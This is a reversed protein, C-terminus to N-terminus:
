LSEKVNLEMRFKVKNDVGMRTDQVIVESFLKAKQLEAKIRDVSEFSSADGQLRLRGNELLFDTFSVRVEKPIGDTVAKMVELASTGSGLVGLKRKADFVKDRMQRMPDQTAPSEPFTTRYLERMEREIRGYGSQAIYAKVGLNVGLLVAAAAAAAAVGRRMRRVGEDAARFAFPGRRFNIGESLALGLSVPEAATSGALEAAVEEVSLDLEGAEARLAADPALLILKGFRVGLDTELAKVCHRLSGTRGAPLVSRLARIDGDCKACLDAGSMLLACGDGPIMRAIAALGAWSPAVVHPDIGAAALRDLHQRLADRRLMVGLVVSEAGSKKGDRLVLHELMVDDVPFPVSDEIEFPLAKELRKRDSFPFRLVRQSLLSGPVSAVIRAGAWAKAKEQLLAALDADTAFSAEFSDILQTKGMGKSVVAASVRDQGIKLGVIKVM